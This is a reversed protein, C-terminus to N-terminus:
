LGSLNFLCRSNPAKSRMCLTEYKWTNNVIPIYTYLIPNNVIPIYMCIEEVPPLEAALYCTMEMCSVLGSGMIM